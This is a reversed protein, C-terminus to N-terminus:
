QRREVGNKIGCNDGYSHVHIKKLIAVITFLSVKVETILVIVNFSRFSVSLGGGRGGIWVFNYFNLIFFNVIM